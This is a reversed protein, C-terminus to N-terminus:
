CSGAIKQLAHKDSIVQVYSPTVTYEIYSTKAATFQLPSLTIAIFLLLISYAHDLRASSAPAPGALSYICSRPKWLSNMVIMNIKTQM